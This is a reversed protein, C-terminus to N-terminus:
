QASMSVNIAKQLSAVNDSFADQELSSQEEYHAGSERSKHENASSTSGNDHSLILRNLSNHRPSVSQPM